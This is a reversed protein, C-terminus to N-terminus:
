AAVADEEEDEDVETSAMSLLTIAALGVISSASLIWASMGWYAPLGGFQTGAIAFGLGVVSVEFVILIGDRFWRRRRVKMRMSRREVVLTVIVLPLVTALVQCTEWNMVM